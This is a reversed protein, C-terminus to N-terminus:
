HIGILKGDSLCNTIGVIELARHLRLNPKRRDSRRASREFRQNIMVAVYQYKAQHKRYKADAEHECALWCAHHVGLM